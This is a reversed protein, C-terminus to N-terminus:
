PNIEPRVSSPELLVEENYVETVTPKAPPIMVDFGIPRQILNRIKECVGSSCRPNLEREVERITQRLERRWNQHVQFEIKDVPVSWLKQHLGRAHDIRAKIRKITNSIPHIQITPTVRNRRVGKAECVSVTLMGLILALALVFIKKM